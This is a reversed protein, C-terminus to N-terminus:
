LLKYATLPKKQLQLAIATAKFFYKRPILHTKHFNQTGQFFNYAKLPISKNKSFFSTSFFKNFDTSSFPANKLILLHM